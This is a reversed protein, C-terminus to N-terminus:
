QHFISDSKMETFARSSQQLDRLTGSYNYTVTVKDGFLKEDGRLIIGSYDGIYLATGATVTFSGSYLRHESEFIDYIKKEGTLSDQVYFSNICYKGPSLQRGMVFEKPTHRRPTYELFPLYINKETQINTIILGMSLSATYDGRGTKLYRFRGFLYGKAPDPRDIHLSCGAATCIIGTILVAYLRKM